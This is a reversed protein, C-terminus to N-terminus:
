RWEGKRIKDIFLDFQHNLSDGFYEQYQGLQFGQKIKEVLRADHEKLAETSSPIALAQDVETISMGFPIPMDKLLDRLVGIHAQQAAITEALPLHYYANRWVIRDCKDPVSQVYSDTLCEAKGAEYAEQNQAETFLPTAIAGHNTLDDLAEDADYALYCEQKEDVRIDFAVPEFKPMTM